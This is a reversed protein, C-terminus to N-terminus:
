NDPRSRTWARSARPPTRRRRHRAGRAPQMKTFFGGVQDFTLAPIQRGAVRGDGKADATCQRM